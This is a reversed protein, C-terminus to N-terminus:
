SLYLVAVFFLMQDNVTIGLFGGEDRELPSHLTSRSPSSGCGNAENLVRHRVVPVGVLSVKLYM